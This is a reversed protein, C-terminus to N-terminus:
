QCKYSFAEQSNGCPGVLAPVAPATCTPVVPTRNALRVPFAVKPTSMPILGNSSSRVNGEFNFTIIVTDDGGNPVAGAIIAAADKSLMQFQIFGDTSGPNVVFYIPEVAEPVTAGGLLRYSIRVNNAVFENLADGALVDDGSKLVIPELDSRLGFHGIYIPAVGAAAAPGLDLSGRILETDSAPACAEDLISAGEVFVSMDPPACGTAATAAAAILSAAILPKM